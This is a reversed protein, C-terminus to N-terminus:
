KNLWLKDMQQGLKDLSGDRLLIKGDPGILMYHPIGSFGYLDYPRKQADYVVDWDIGHKEVAGKTAEPTDRVAVSVVNLGKEKYRAAIDKLKPMDKICYPCWSAMFDVLTYKGPAVCDKLTIRRGNSDSGEFDAIPQGPATKARLRAFNIYRAARRSNKFNDPAEALLSDVKLPDAWKLWEVGFFSSFINDKNENYKKEAFDALLDFDEAEEAEAMEKILEGFRDNLPTGSAVNLTDAWSAEGDEVVYYGKVRGDVMLQALLPMRLSDSAQLIFASAGQTIPASALVTSDEFSVLDVTKGNFNEPFALNVRAEERHCGAALLLIAAPLGSVFLRGFNKM